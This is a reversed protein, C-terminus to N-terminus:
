TFMVALEIGDSSNTGREAAPVRQEDAGSQTATNPRSVSYRSELGRYTVLM